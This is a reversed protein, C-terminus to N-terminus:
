SASSFICLVFLETMACILPERVYHTCNEARTAEDRLLYTSFLYTKFFPWLCLWSIFMKWMLLTQTTQSSFSYLDSSLMVSTFNCTGHTLIISTFQERDKGTSNPVMMCIWALHQNLVLFYLKKWEVSKLGTLPHTFFFTVPRRLSVPSSKAPSWCFLSCFAWPFRPPSVSLSPEGATFIIRLKWFHDTM